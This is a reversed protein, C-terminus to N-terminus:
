WRGWDFDYMRSQPNGRLQNSNLSDHMGLNGLYDNHIRNRARSEAERDRNAYIFEDLALSVGNDSDIPRTYMLVAGKRFRITAKKAPEKIKPEFLSKIRSIINM